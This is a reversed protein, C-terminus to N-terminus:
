TKALAKLLWANLDAIEEMCVSHAMPYEHWEVDYGLKRLVDRSAEGRAAPVV